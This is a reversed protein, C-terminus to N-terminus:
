EENVEDEYRNYYLLNSDFLKGGISKRDSNQWIIYNNKYTCASTWQAIWTHYKSLVDKTFYRNAYDINTYIGTHYGNKKIVQCFSNAMSSAKKKGVHVGNQSAYRVSDYEFDYFIPLTIHEKYPEITDLCAQAERKAMNDTYAYSFWYIGIIMGNDIAEKINEHFRIDSNPSTGYGARFIVFKIGAQKIKKWNLNGNHKSIDLGLIYADKNASRDDIDLKFKEEELEDYTVLEVKKSNSDKDEGNIIDYIISTYTNNKTDNNLIDYIIDAGSSAHSYSVSGAAIMLSLGLVSVKRM